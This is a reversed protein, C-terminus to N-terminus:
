EMPATLRLRLSPGEPYVVDAIRAGRGSGAMRIVIETMRSSGGDARSFRVVVDNAGEVPLVELDHVVPDRMGFLPHVELRCVGQKRACAADSVLLEALSGAFYDKLVGKSQEALTEGPEPYLVAEWAFDKYLKRVLEVHPAKKGGAAVASPALAGCLILLPLLHRLLKM